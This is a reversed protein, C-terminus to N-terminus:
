GVLARWRREAEAAYGRMEAPKRVGEETVYATVLRAPTVEFYVNRVELWRERTIERREGEEVAFRQPQSPAAVKLTDALVYVPVKEARAALTLLHTGVKNVFSGDPRVSDAGVVVAETERVFLGMQAETILTLSIGRGALARATRLGEYLPRSESVIVRRPRLRSLVEIVASSYTLTILTDQPIVGRATAAMGDAAAELREIAEAVGQAPDGSARYREWALAMANEIAAMMPRALVLAHSCERLEDDGAGPAVQALAQLAQLALQRAGHERDERIRKVATIIEQRVDKGTLRDCSARKTV